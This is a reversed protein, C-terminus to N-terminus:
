KPAKPQKYTKVLKAWADQPMSLLVDQEDLIHVWGDEVHISYDEVVVSKGISELLKFRNM